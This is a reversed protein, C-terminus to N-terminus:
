PTRPDPAPPRLVTLALVQAACIAFWVNFEADQFPTAPRLLAPAYVLAFLAVCAALGGRLPKLAWSRGMRLWMATLGIMGHLGGRALRLWLEADTLRHGGHAAHYAVAVGAYPPAQGAALVLVTSADYILVATGLAFLSVLLAPHAGGRGGSVDTM